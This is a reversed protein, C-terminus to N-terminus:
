PQSKLLLFHLGSSLSIATDELHQPAERIAWNTFFKGAICSVGTWSRPWSFPYSVWQLIRPNGKHSLQYLIWRCHPLGPNLGQTLFIGQLLSLSGVRTNQDPSSWPSYLGHVWLVDSMVSCSEIKLTSFSLQQQGLFTRFFCRFPKQITWYLVICSKQITWSPSVSISENCVKNLYSHIYFIALSVILLPSLKLSCIFLHLWSFIFLFSYSFWSLASLLITAIFWFTM